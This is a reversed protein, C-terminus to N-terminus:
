RWALSRCLTPTCWEQWVVQGGLLWVVVDAGLTIAHRIVGVPVGVLHHLQEYGGCEIPLNALIM